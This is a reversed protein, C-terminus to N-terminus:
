DKSGNKMNKLANKIAQDMSDDSVGHTDSYDYTRSNAKARYIIIKTNKM